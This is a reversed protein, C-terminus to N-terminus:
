TTRSRTRAVCLRAPWCSTVEIDHPSLGAAQAYLRWEEPLFACRFSVPGDHRMFRHWRAAIALAKFGFGSGSSRYLDNIFWGHRARTEMWELFRVIEPDALHHTFLSSIVLDVPENASDFHYADGSIWQIQSGKPTFARAARIAMPNLDIGTLRLAVRKRMAWKEIKRLVDGGGCGVDVVHLPYEESPLSTFQALWSLTPRYGFTVRNVASLDRLCDHLDEYSCPEDMLESLHARRSFDTVSEQEPAQGNSAAEFSM